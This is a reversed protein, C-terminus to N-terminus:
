KKYIFKWPHFGLPASYWGGWKSTDIMDQNTYHYIPIMVQDKVLLMTEAQQFTKMRAAPAQTRANEILKDFADNKYNGCNNGSDKLFLELMTNPDLYDGVWGNRSVNFDRQKDRLDLLTKFEMNQLTMNIGLINKWAQQVFEGIAKHGENTNYIYTFAPFGKGGPYGAAALLKKAEEPNFGAGKVPTYGAMVPVFEDCPMQGGKTVKDVITKKDIAMALAKRVRVDDFPKKALNLSIYYTGVQASTQYDKRLKIEDIKSVAINHQWDVEGNKFMNYATTDNDLPLIKISKLKVNKADWYKPNKEVLVHEQVKWEKLLYAGNTVINGPKTWESGFKDVAWQPIPGFAQHAMMDVAYPAPGTLTVQLTYDDIAKYGVEDFGVKGNTFNEAGKVVMAPFYAYEAATKPDLIRKMSNVFDKATVPHGDSWESKRLHFTVVLGDKSTEWKEAVGPYAKNTKPDYQVLGEFLALYVNTSPVDTMLNPDLTPESGNVMVMDQANMITAFALSFVTAIIKKKM